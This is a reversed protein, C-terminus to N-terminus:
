AVTGGLARRSAPLALFEERWGRTIQVEEYSVREDSFSVGMGVVEDVASQLAARLEVIEGMCDLLVVDPDTAEAPVRMQGGGFRIRQIAREIRDLLHLEADRMAESM